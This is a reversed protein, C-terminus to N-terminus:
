LRLEHAACSWTPGRAGKQSRAIKLCSPMYLVGEEEGGQSPLLFLVALQTTEGRTM